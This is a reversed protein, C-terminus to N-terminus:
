VLSSFMHRTMEQAVEFLRPDFPPQGTVEISRYGRNIGRPPPLANPGIAMDQVYFASAEILAHLPGDAYPQHFIMPGDGTEKAKQKIGRLKAATLWGRNLLDNLCQVPKAALELVHPQDMVVFFRENAHEALSPFLKEITGAEGKKITPDLRAKELRASTEPSIRSDLLSAIRVKSAPVRFSRVLFALFMLLVAEYADDDPFPIILQESPSDDPLCRGEVIRAAALCDDVSTWVSLEATVQLCREEPFFDVDVIANM